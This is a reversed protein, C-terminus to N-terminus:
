ESPESLRRAMLGILKFADNAGLQGYGFVFGHRVANEIYNQSLPQVRIGSQRLKQVAETDTMRQRLKQTFFAVLHLGTSSSSVVLDDPMLTEIAEMLALRRAAYVKRMRRLHRLLHGERMFEALATQGIGSTHVDIRARGRSFMDTFREHAVMYGLRLNPMMLKSFTGLYIVRGM